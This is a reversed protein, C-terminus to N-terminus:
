VNIIRNLIEESIIKSKKINDEFEKCKNEIKKVSNLYEESKMYERLIKTLNNM